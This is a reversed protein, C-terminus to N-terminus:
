VRYDVVARDLRVSSIFKGVEVHKPHVQYRKLAEEDEFDALLALDWAGPLGVADAGVELSILGDITGVLSKLAVAIRAANTAKDTGEAEDKLRWLVIHRIM